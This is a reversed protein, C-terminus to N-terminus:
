SWARRRLPGGGPGASRRGRRERAAGRRHRAAAPEGRPARGRGRHAGRAAGGRGTGERLALMRVRLASHPSYHGFGLVEGEAALVRAFAGPAPEGDVRAVAGSLVWPHRRRLSRDRGPHLVVDIVRALTAPPLDGATRYASPAAESGPAGTFSDASLAARSGVRRRTSRRGAAACACGRRSTDRPRRLRELLRPAAVLRQEDRDAVAGAVPAVHHLVFRELVGLGGRQHVLEEDADLDIAFLSRVEVLDVHVRHRTERAVAAPRERDEARGVARGEVAAGVERGLRAM